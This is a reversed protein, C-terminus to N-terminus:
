RQPDLPDSRVGQCNRHLLRWPVSQPRPLIKSLAGGGGLARSAPEEPYTSPEGSARSLMEAVAAEPMQLGTHTM